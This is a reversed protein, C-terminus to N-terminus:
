NTIEKILEQSVINLESCTEGAFGGMICLIEGECNYFSKINGEDVLFGTKGNGYVCQYISVSLPNGNQIILNIEDVKEKLWPLDTLPNDVNCPMSTAKSKDCGTAVFVILCLTAIMLKFKM